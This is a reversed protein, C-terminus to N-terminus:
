VGVRAFKVEQDIGCKSFMLCSFRYSQSVYFLMWSKSTNHTNVQLYEHDQRCFNEVALFYDKADM